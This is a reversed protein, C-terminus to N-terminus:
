SEFSFSSKMTNRPVENRHDTSGQIKPISAIEERESGILGGTSPEVNLAPAIGGTCHWVFGSRYESKRHSLSRLATVSDQFSISPTLPVM